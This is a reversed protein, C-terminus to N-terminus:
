IKEWGNNQRDYKAFEGTDTLESATMSLEFISDGDWGCQFYLASDTLLASIGFRDNYLRTGFSNTGEPAFQYRQLRESLAAFQQESFPILNDKNEFFDPDNSQLERERTEIRFLQVDYSM